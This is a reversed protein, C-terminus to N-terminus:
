RASATCSMSRAMAASFVRICSGASTSRKVTALMSTVGFVELETAPLDAEGDVEAVRVVGHQLRAAVGDRAHDLGGHLAALGRDGLAEVGHRHVKWGSTGAATSRAARAWPRRAKRM